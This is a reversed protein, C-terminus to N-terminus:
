QHTRGALWLQWSSSHNKLYACYPEELHFALRWEGGALAEIGTHLVAIYQNMSLTEYNSPLQQFLGDLFDSQLAIDRDHATV